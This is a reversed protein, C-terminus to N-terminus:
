ILHSVEIHHSDSITLQNVDGARMHEQNVFLTVDPLM